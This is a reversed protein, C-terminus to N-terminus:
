SIFQTIAMITPYLRCGQTAFIRCYRQCSRDFQLLRLLFFLILGKTAVKKSPHVQKPLRDAVHQGSQLHRINIVILQVIQGGTDSVCTLLPVRSLESRLSVGKNHLRVLYLCLSIRTESGAWDEESPHPHHRWEFWVAPCGERTFPSQM